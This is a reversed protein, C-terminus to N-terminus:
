KEITWYNRCPGKMHKENKLYEKCPNDLEEVKDELESTRDEVQDMRSTLSQGSDELHTKSNKLEMKIVVQTRVLIEIEKNYKTKLDQITRMM